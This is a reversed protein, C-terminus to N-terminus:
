IPKYNKVNRDPWGHVGALQAEASSGSEFMYRKKQTEYINEMEEVQLERDYIAVMAIDLASNYGTGYWSCMGGIALYKNDSRDEVVTNNNAQSISGSNWKGNVYFKMDGNTDCGDKMTLGACFWQPKGGGGAGDFKNTNQGPPSNGAYTHHLLTTGDNSFGFVSSQRGGSSGYHVIGQWSTHSTMHRVWAVFTRSGSATPLAEIKEFLVERQTYNQDECFNLHRVERGGHPPPYEYGARSSSNAAWSGSLLESNPGGDGRSGTAGTVADYFRTGDYCDDGILDFYFVLGNQVPNYSLAKKFALPKGGVAGM